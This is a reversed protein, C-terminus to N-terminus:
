RILTVDGKKKIPTEDYCAGTILYYYTGVDAPRGGVNGDWKNKINNSIFIQEGYRNYIEMRYDAPNGLSVPGFQDNLGDGNPSFANPILLECCMESQITIRATDSCGYSNSGVVFFHNSANPLVVVVSEGKGVYQNYANYYVYKEAGTGILKISDNRCIKGKEIEVLEYGLSLNPKDIITLVM